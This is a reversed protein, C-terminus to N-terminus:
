PKRREHEEVIRRAADRKVKDEAVVVQNKTIWEPPDVVSYRIDELTAALIESPWREWDKRWVIISSRSVDTGYKVVQPEQDRKIAAIAAEVTKHAM